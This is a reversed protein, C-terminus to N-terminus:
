NSNEYVCNEQSEEYVQKISASKGLGMAGLIYKNNACTKQYEVAEDSWDYNKEETSEATPNGFFKLRFEKEFDNVWNVQQNM